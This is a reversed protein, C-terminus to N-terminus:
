VDRRSWNRHKRMIVKKRRIRRRGLTASLQEWKTNQSGMRWAIKECRVQVKNREEGRREGLNEMVCEGTNRLRQAWPQRTLGEPEQRVCRWESRRSGHSVVSEKRVIMKLKTLDKVVNVMLDGESGILNL